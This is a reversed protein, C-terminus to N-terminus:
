RRCPSRSRQLFSPMRRPTARNLLRHGSPHYALPGSNALQDIPHRRRQYDLTRALANLPTFRVSGTAPIGEPYDDDDDTTDAIAQVIRGTVYGWTQFDAPLPFGLATTTM